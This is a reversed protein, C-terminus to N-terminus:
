TNCKTLVTNSCSSLSYQSHDDTTSYSGISKNSACDKRTSSNDWLLASNSSISSSQSNEKEGDKLQELAHSEFTNDPPSHILRKIRQAVCQSTLRADADDDWCLEMTEVITLFSQFTFFLLSTILAVVMLTVFKGGSDEMKGKLGLNELRSLSSQLKWNKSPSSAQFGIKIFTM